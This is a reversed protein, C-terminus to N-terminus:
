QWDPYYYITIPKQTKLKAHGGKIFNTLSGSPPLFTLAWKIPFVIISRDQGEIEYFETLQGKSLNRIKFDGLIISAPIGNMGSKTITEVRASVPTYQRIVLKDGDKVDEQILFNLIEGETLHNESKVDNTIAIKIPLKKVSTYDYNSHIIPQALNQKQLNSDIFNDTLTEASVCGSIFFISLISLLIKNM